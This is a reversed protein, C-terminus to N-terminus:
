WRAAVTAVSASGVECARGVAYSAYYVVVVGSADVSGILTRM